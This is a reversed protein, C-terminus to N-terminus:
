LKYILVTKITSIKMFARQWFSFHLNSISPLWAHKFHNSLVCNELFMLINLTVYRYSWRFWLPASFMKPCNRLSLICCLTQIIKSFEGLERLTLILSHCFIEKVKVFYQLFILTISTCPQLSSTLCRASIELSTAFIANEM